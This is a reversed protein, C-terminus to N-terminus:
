QAGGESLRVCRLPKEIHHWHQNSNNFEQSDNYAKVVMEAHEDTLAADFVCLAYKKVYDADFTVGHWMEANEKAARYLHFLNSVTM